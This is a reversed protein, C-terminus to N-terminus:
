LALPAGDLFTISRGVHKITSCGSKALALREIGIGLGVWTEFIGWNQDLAHPGYSGSAVELGNIEIDLTEKYVASKETVFSYELIGVAAMARKALGELRDMQEGDKVGALEVFNLMTFENMHQAGQSEKRFCSGLEFIRVPQGTIRYLERMVIYLNPAHMPRLCRKGDLWFVQERLHADETINMRDLMNGSIITPTYVRTFGEEETLWRTLDREIFFVDPAHKESLVSKVHARNQKALVVELEKFAKNREDENSFEKEKDEKKANLETLRELQTTSFQM